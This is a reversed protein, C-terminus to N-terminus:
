IRKSWGYRSALSRSRESALIECHEFTIYGYCLKLSNLCPCDDWSFVDSSENLDFDLLEFFESIKMLDEFLYLLGYVNSSYKTVWHLYKEDELVHVFDCM